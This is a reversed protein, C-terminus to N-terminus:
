DERKEEIEIFYDLGDATPPYRHLEKVTNRALKSDVNTATAKAYIGVITKAGIRRMVRVAEHRLEHDSSEMSSLVFLSIPSNHLLEVMEHTIPSGHFPIVANALGKQVEEIAENKFDCDAGFLMIGIPQAMEKKFTDFIHEPTSIQGNIKWQKNM